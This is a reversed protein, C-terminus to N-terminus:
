NYSLPQICAAPHPYGRLSQNLTTQQDNTTVTAEKILATIRAHSKRERSKKIEAAYHPDYTVPQRQKDEILRQLESRAAQYREYLAPDLKQVQLRQAVDGAVVHDIAVVVFQCCLSHINELHEKMLDEWHESQAKFLQCKLLPNFIGLLEQGRSRALQGKTWEIAERRFKDTQRRKAERYSEMLEPEKPDQSSNTGSTELTATIRFKHGYQRM